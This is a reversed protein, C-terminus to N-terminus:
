AASTRRNAPVMKKARSKAVAKKKASAKKAAPRKAASKKAPVRVPEGEDALFALKLGLSKVVSLVTSLTPNGDASFSRYLQERSLGAEEAIQTMGVSRAIDGISEAILQVHGTLVAEELYAARAEKTTLYAAADYEKAVKKTM